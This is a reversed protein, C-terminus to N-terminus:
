EHRSFTQLFNDSSGSNGRAALGLLDDGASEDGYVALDDGFQAGLSIRFDIVDAHVSLKKVTGLPMNIQQHVLGLAVDSRKAIRFVAGGDHIQKM